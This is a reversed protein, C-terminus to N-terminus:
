VFQFDSAHLSSAKVGTLTIVNSPDYTIVTNAGVQTMDNQVAGFNAFMAQALVINDHLPSFNTITDQGFSGTFVFTDHGHGGNILSSVATVTDAGNGLTITSGAGATVHTLAMASQSSATRARRLRTALRQRAHDHRENSGLDNVVDGNGNGLTITNNSGPTRGNNNVVDNNGNGLTIKNNSGLGM